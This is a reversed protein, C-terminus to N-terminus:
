VNCWCWEVGSTASLTEREPKRSNGFADAQALSCWISSIFCFDPKQPLSAVGSYNVRIMMMSSEQIIRLWDLLLLRKRQRGELHLLYCFIQVAGFRESLHLGFVEWFLQSWKSLSRFLLDTTRRDAGGVWGERGHAYHMWPALAMTIETPVSSRGNPVIKNNREMQEMYNLKMRSMSQILSSDCSRRSRLCNCSSVVDGSRSAM